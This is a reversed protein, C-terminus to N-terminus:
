SRPNMEPIIVYTSVIEVASSLTRFLACRTMYRAHVKDITLRARESSAIRHEIQIKRIVLVGDETTEIEGHVEAMLRGHSADIREAELASGFTDVLSAGTAAVVYDLTSAHPPVLRTVEDDCYHALAQHVSFTVPQKEAPLHAIRVPGYRREIHVKSIYVPKSM